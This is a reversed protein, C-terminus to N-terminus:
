IYLRTQNQSYSTIELNPNIPILDHKFALADGHGQHGVIITTTIVCLEWKM